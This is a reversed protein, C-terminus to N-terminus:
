TSSAPHGHGVAAIVPKWRPGLARPPSTGTGPALLYASCSFQMDIPYPARAYPMSLGAHTGGLGWAGLLAAILYINISGVVLVLVWVACLGGPRAPAPIRGALLVV